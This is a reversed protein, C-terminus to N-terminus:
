NSSVIEIDYIDLENQDYTEKLLQRWNSFQTQAAGSITIIEGNIDVNLPEFQDHYNRSMEDFLNLNQRYDQRDFFGKAILGGGAVAGGTLIRDRVGDDSADLGAALAAVAILSGFVVNRRSQSKNRRAERAFPYVENLWNEYSNTTADFFARYTRDYKEVVDQDRRVFSQIRQWEQTQNDPIYAIEFKDKSNINLSNAFIDPAFFRAMVLDRVRTVEDLHSLKPSKGRSILRQNRSQVRSHDKAVNRLKQYVDNAISQYLPGFADRGPKYYRDHWGLQVRHETNKWKIWTAGTADLLRWRITMDETTSKQIIGELYLDSSVTPSPVVLVNDFQNLASIAQKIRYASRISETKRVEPWIGKERMRQEEEDLNPNLVIVAFDMDPIDLRAPTNTATGFASSTTDSPLKPGVGVAIVVGSSLLCLLCLFRKLLHTHM